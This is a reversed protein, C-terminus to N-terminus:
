DKEFKKRRSGWLLVIMAAAAITVIYVVSYDSDGTNVSSNNITNDTSNNDPQSLADNSLLAFSVINDAAFTLKNDKISTIDYEKIQGDATIGVVSLNESSKVPVSIEVGPLCWLKSPIYNGNNDTLTLQYSSVIKKSGAYNQLKKYYESNKDFSRCNIQLGSHMQGKIVIGNELIKSLNKYFNCKITPYNNNIQSDANCVWEVSNDTVANLEDVFEKTIMESKLVNKNTDDPIVTSDSGVIKLGSTTNYFVNKVNESLNLGAISGTNKGTADSVKASTYSSAISGLNKGVLGGKIKSNSDGVTINSACGYISGKKDNIGALGGCIETGKVVSANRCGKIVGNNLAAIGGSITGNINSNYKSLKIPQGQEDFGIGSTLAVGSICHDILGENVASIGGAYESATNYTSGTVCLDKVIGREGIKEFLSGYQSNDIKLGVIIYGNGNFIGNFARNDDVSGIGKTWKSDEPAVINNELIYSASGYKYYNDNVLNALKVLDDYTRIIFRGNIDKDFDDLGYVYNSYYVQYPFYVIGHTNDPIPYLDPTKGNDINQYWAQKGYTVKENLCYAVEGSKFSYETREEASISGTGFAKPASDKLYYNNTIKNKDYSEANGIIAGCNVSKDDEVKGYNYCNKLSVNEDNVYGLVGGIYADNASVKVTGINACNIIQANDKIYGVVGGICDKASPLNINGFYMCKEVVSSGEVFGVVGGIHRIDAKGSSINVYSSVSSIKGGNLKGVVGGIYDLYDKVASIEIEGYLKFNKITGSSSAFLGKGNNNKEDEGNCSIKMNSISHGQGDFTGKFDKISEWERNELNIDNTLVANIDSNPKESIYEKSGNVFAAFWFLQGGNSIEYVGNNLVAPEYKDCLICFGNKYIHQHQKDGIHLVAARSISTYYNHDTNSYETVICRYVTEDLSKANAENIVGNDAFYAANFSNSEGFNQDIDKWDATYNGVVLKQWKYSLTNEPNSPKAEITFVPKEGIDKYIDIPPKTIIPENKSNKSNKTKGSAYPGLVSSIGSANKTSYAQLKFYYTTNEKLGDVTYIESDGSIIVDKGDKKLVVFSSDSSSTSYYLKYSEPKRDYNTTNNWRLTESNNTTSSVHLDTPLKPPAADAGDVLCGIVSTANTLEKGDVTQINSSSLEKPNWKVERATFGYASSATGASTTETKASEPLSAFTTTYTINESNATAWTCGGSLSLVESLTVDANVKAIIFDIDVSDGQSLSGKLSFSYGNSQSSSEGESMAISTTSSGNVNVAAANNSVNYSKEDDKNLSSIEFENTSYTSPDGPNRGAYLSEVDITQLKYNDEATLNFEKVVRNYDSVPICSNAPTLQINVDTNEFRGEIFDGEKPCGEDGYLQKYEEVDEATVNHEPIWQDYHYSVIPVVLLAVYDNGGGSTFTLTESKTHSKQYNGIYQHMFDLGIGFKIEPVLIKVEAKVNISGGLGVNWNGTTTDTVGTSISYSTSGRATIASGYDLESWYPVSLMVSHVAPNSWGVTKGTYKMYTTDNDIDIPWLTLFTGHDDENARHFYDDNSCKIQISDGNFYCWYIDLYIKDKDAGYEDGTVVLTQEVFRDSEAFSASVALHIFANTKGTKGDFKKSSIFKGNKIRENATEGNSSPVFNYFVGEVFLTAKESNQSFRTGTIAVPEKRDKDKKVWDLTEITKAKSWANCYSGNEWLVINVLNENKSMDGRSKKDGNKDGNNYNYNKNAAIVLEKNGDGDLDMTASSTFKMRGGSGEGKDCYKQVPQDNEWKYIATYGDQCFDHDNSYPMTVSVVLDDSGSIDTTSLSVLPRNTSKFKNFNSSISSLEINYKESFGGNESDSQKFIAIRPKKDDSIDRSIYVAIENYNDGDFDGVTIGMYGSSEQVEIDQVFDDSSLEEVYQFKKELKNNDTSKDNYEYVFLGFKSKNDDGKDVFLSCQIISDKIYDGRSLDGLKISRTTSTQYQWQGGGNAKDNEYKNSYSLKNSKFKEIDLGDYNAANEMVYAECVDYKDHNGQGMYLESLISPKYGELPNTTDSEDFLEPDELSNFGLQSYQDKTMYDGRYEDEESQGEAPVAKSTIKNDNLANASVAFMSSSICMALFVSLTKMSFKKLMM